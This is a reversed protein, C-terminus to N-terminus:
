EEIEGADVLAQYLDPAIHKMIAEATKQCDIPLSEEPLDESIEDTLLMQNLAVAQPSLRVVADAEKKSDTQTHNKVVDKEKEHSESGVSRVQEVGKPGTSMAMGKIGLIM